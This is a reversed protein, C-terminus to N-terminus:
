SSVGHPAAMTLKVHQKLGYIVVKEAVFLKASELVESSAFQRHTSIHVRLEKKRVRVRATAVGDLGKLGREISKELAQSEFHLGDSLVTPVTLPPHPIVGLLFSGLGSIILTGSVVVVPWDGWNTNLLRAEYNHPLLVAQSGFWATPVEILVVISAFLLLAALLFSAGRIVFVSAFRM